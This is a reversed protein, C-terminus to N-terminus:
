FAAHGTIARGVVLMHVEHAGEYKKVVQLNRLHRGSHYAEFTFVDAPLTDVALQAVELAKSVNNYKGLSVHLHSLAGAAKLRGLQFAVLSANETENLM